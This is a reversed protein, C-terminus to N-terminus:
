DFLRGISRALSFGVPLRPRHSPTGIVWRFRKGARAARARSRTAARSAKLASCALAAPTRVPTPAARLSAWGVAAGAAERGAPGARHGAQLAALQDAAAGAATARGLRAAGARREVPSRRDAVLQGAVLGGPVHARDGLEFADGALAEGQDVEERGEGVAGARLAGEVLEGGFRHFVDALVARDRDEAPARLRDGGAEVLGVELEGVHDGAVVVGVDAFEGFVGAVPAM